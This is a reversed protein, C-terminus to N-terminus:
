GVAIRTGTCRVEQPGDGDRGAFVSPRDLKIQRIECRCQPCIVDITDSGAQHGHEPTEILGCHKCLEM